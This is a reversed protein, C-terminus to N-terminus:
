MLRAGDEPSWRYQTCIEASVSVPGSARASVPSCASANSGYGVKTAAESRAADVDTLGGISRAADM